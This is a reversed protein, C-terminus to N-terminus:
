PEGGLIKQLGKRAYRLRSKVTEEGDGTIDAIAALSFGQEQLLLADRQEPPLGGIAQMLRRQREQRPDDSDPAVPEPAQELDLHDNDRRRWFDALRNRAIRYLWTRFAAEPRYAPASNVVAMWADQALEEVVALRPCSRYLFAFLGDKHRHYLVEFAGTDGRQYALMLAEDSKLRHILKLM